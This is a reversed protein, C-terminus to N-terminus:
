KKNIFKFIIYYFFILSLILDLYILFGGVSSENIFFKKINPISMSLIKSEFLKEFIFFIESECLNVGEINDKNGERGFVEIFISSFM